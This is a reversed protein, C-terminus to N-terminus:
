RGSIQAPRNDPCISVPYAPEVEFGPIFPSAEASSVWVEVDVPSDPLDWPAPYRVSSPSAGAIPVPSGGVRLEVGGLALPFPPLADEIDAAFGSGTVQTVSGRSVPIRYGSVFAKLYGNAAPVNTYPTPPVIDTSQASAIDIRVIRNATTVAFAVSGDGALAVETAAEPFNTIQQLGTGDSRIVYVQRNQGYLFAVHEGDDSISAAFGPADPMDTVLDTSSGAPVSYASLRAPGSFRGGGAQYIVLTGADNILAQPDLAVTSTSPVVMRLQGGQGLSLGSYFGQIVVTGDNAIQHTEGPQLSAGEYQTQQGIQLDM